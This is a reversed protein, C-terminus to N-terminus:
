SKWKYNKWYRCKAPTQHIACQDHASHGTYDISASGEQISPSVFLKVKGFDDATAILGDYQTAPKSEWVVEKSGGEKKKIIKKLNFALDVSNIDTGDASKPWIRVPWGYPCTFTAWRKDSLESSRTKQKGTNVDWFLLEYDNSVSQLILGDDSFDIHTVAGHHGKCKCRRTFTQANYLFIERDHSAVAITGQSKNPSFKIDCIWSNPHPTLSHEPQPGSPKLFGDDIIVTTGSPLDSAGSSRRSLKVEGNFLYLEGDHESKTGVRRRGVRGGIGVIITKGDPSWAVARAMLSTGDSSKLPQAKLCM